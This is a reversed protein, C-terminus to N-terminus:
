DLIDRFRFFLNDPEISAELNCNFYIIVTRNKEINHYMCSTFGWMSGNHGYWSGLKHLSLGYNSGPRIEVMDTLRRQQLTDSLFGGGVLKEAYKQLERPTSYVGGAAWVNSLDISETLDGNEFYEGFYYGRAHNGPLATGSSIFGTNTLGLPNTIRNTIETELTHGTVKEIIMGLLYTNTNSYYFGTGPSFYYDHSIALSVIQQPLWVKLPETNMSQAWQLDGTYNFIGSTMNSLMKVTVSDSKNYEPFYKSLKDSLSIKKEDVLQLLVTGTFTKTNSAIRFTFNSDMPAKTVLDSVGAAYMWNIGKEHDVVLAVIGPVKTNTIISDTVQKMQDILLQNPDPEEKTCATFAVFVLVVSLFFNSFHKKSNNM